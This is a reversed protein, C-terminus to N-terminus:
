TEKKNKKISTVGYGKAFITKGNKVIGISFGATHNITKM